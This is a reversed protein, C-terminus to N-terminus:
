WMINVRRNPALCSIDAVTRKAGGCHEYTETKSLARVQIINPNVGNQVLLRAM